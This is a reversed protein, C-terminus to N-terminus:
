DNRKEPAALLSDDFTGTFSISAPGTM